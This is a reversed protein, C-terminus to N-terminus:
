ATNSPHPKSWRRQRSGAPRWTRCTAGCSHRAWGSALFMATMAIEFCFYDPAFSIRRASQRDLLTAVKVSAAGRALLNRVLFETTIGTEVLGMILLVHANEVTVEPSFFIETATSGAQAIEKCDPRIFQCIVPIELERILDAM